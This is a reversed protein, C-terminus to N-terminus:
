FCADSSNSYFRPLNRSNRESRRSTPSAVLQIRFKSIEGSRSPGPYSIECARLPRYFRSSRPRCHSNDDVELRESLPKDRENKRLPEERGAFRRSLTITAWDAARAEGRVRLYVRATAPSRYSREPRRRPSSSASASANASASAWLWRM